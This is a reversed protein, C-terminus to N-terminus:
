LKRLSKVHANVCTALGLSEPHTDYGGELLSIVKGQGSGSIKEMASTLQQTAWEYDQKSLNLESGLPDYKYGDFGASIILLQPNFFELKPIVIDTLAKRFGTNGKYREKAVSPLVDSPLIGVSIYNDTIESTGLLPPYFGARKALPPDDPLDYCGNNLDGYIMHISAFFAKPDNKLIDATGNGFHVDIDVVAVRELGWRVRAYVLAIAANNLLCFGTSLCGSTCGFRGAHHGPPRTCVFVNTKSNCLVLDVAKCAAGAACLAAKLSNKTVLTDFMLPFVKKDEKEVIETEEKVKDEKIKKVKKQKKEEDRTSSRCQSIVAEYPTEALVTDDVYLVNGQSIDVAPVRGVNFDHRIWKVNLLGTEVEKDCCYLLRWRKLPVSYICFFNGRFFEESTRDEDTVLRSKHIGM